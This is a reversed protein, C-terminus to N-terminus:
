GTEEQGWNKGADLDKGTLCSKVDRLWLVPAEADTRLLWPKNGKPNVSTIEQLELSEWSEEGAGCNSLMLEEGEKHHLEWMWIHSSPFGYSPNHLGKDAFHHRQKQIHQRHKDYSEEWPALHRKIELRWDGDATIKSGLLEFIFKICIGQPPVLVLGWAQM